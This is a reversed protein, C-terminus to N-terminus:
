SHGIRDSLVVIGSSLPQTDVLEFQTLDCDRYLRDGPGVKGDDAAGAPWDQPNEIVGDLSIYTSNSIKRM